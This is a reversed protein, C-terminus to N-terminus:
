IINYHTLFVNYQSKKYNKYNNVLFVFIFFM